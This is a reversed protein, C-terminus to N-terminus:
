QGTSPSIIAISALVTAVIKESDGQFCSVDVRITANRKGIKVPVACARIREGVAPAVFHISYNSTVVDGGSSIGGCWAAAIDALASIVGGHVFGHHQTLNERITLDMVLRERTLEIIDPALWGNFGQKAVVDLMRRRADSFADSM